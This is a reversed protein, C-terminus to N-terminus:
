IGAILYRQVIEAPNQAVEPSMVGGSAIIMAASALTGKACHVHIDDINM